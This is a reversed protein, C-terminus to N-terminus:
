LDGDWTENWEWRLGIPTSVVIKMKYFCHVHSFVIVSSPCLVLQSLVRHGKWLQVGVLNARCITLTISRPESLVPAKPSRTLAPEYRLKEQYPWARDQRRTLLAELSTWRRSGGNVATGIFTLYIAKLGTAFSLPSHPIFHPHIMYTHVICAPFYKHNIFCWNQLRSITM